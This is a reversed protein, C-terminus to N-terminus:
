SGPESGLESDESRDAQDPEEPRGCGCREMCAGMKESCCGCAMMRRMLAAALVAMVAVAAIGGLAGALMSRRM